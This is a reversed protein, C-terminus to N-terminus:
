FIFCNGLISNNKEINSMQVNSNQVDNSIKGVNSKIKTLTERQQYLNNLTNTGTDSINEILALSSQISQNSNELIMTESIMTESIMTESIMTESKQDYVQRSM